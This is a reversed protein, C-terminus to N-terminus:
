EAYDPHGVWPIRVLARHTEFMGMESLETSRAEFDQEDTLAEAKEPTLFIRRVEITFFERKTKVVADEEGKEWYDAPIEEGNVARELHSERLGELAKLYFFSSATDRADRTFSM